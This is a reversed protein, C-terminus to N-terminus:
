WFIDLISYGVIMHNQASIFPGFDVRKIWTM